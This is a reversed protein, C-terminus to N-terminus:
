KCENKLGALYVRIRYLFARTRQVFKSYFLPFAIKVGPSIKGEGYSALRWMDKISPAGDCSLRSLHASIESKDFISYLITAVVKPAYRAKIYAIGAKSYRKLIDRNEMLRNVVPLLAMPDLIIVGTNEHRVVEVQANCHLPTSLAIVPTGCALAEANALGFSEGVPSMSVIVDCSSYFTSLVSLDDMRAINRVRGYAMVSDPPSGIDQVNIIYLNSHCRLLLEVPEKLLRWSSNGVRGIVFAGRPINLRDRFAIIREEEAPSFVDIDVINPCYVGRIRSSGKAIRWQWLDWCSVQISVDLFRAIKCDFRGFINTEVCYVGSSKIKELIKTEFENYVGFRHINFVDPHFDIVSNIGDAGVVVDFGQEQLRRATIGGSEWGWIMVSAVNRLVTAYNAVTRPTGRYGLEKTAIIIRM